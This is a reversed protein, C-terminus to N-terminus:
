RTKHIAVEGLIIGKEVKPNGEYSIRAEGFATVRLKDQINFSFDADGFVVVNTSLNQIGSTNIESDGYITFKQHAIRGNRIKLFSEGYISAQFDHMNVDNFYIESEGYAKLRFDESKLPSELLFTESGRLSLDSLEQYTIIVKETRADCSGYNEKWDHKHDGLFVELTNGHLDYNVGNGFAPEREYAISEENGDTFIVEIHPYVIVKHFHGVPIVKAQSYAQGLGIIIICLISLLNIKQTKNKM